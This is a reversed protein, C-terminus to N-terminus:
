GKIAGIMIGKVFYRQLMPYICMIPLITITTIATKIMQLNARVGVGANRKATELSVASSKMYQMLVYSITHLESSSANYFMTDTYANWQTIIGFLMVTAIIPQCIPFVIRVFSQFYGSGDIMASEELAPSINEIYTRMLVFSFVDMVGPLVYVWFTHALNLAYIMQYVPILGASVYMTFIIYKSLLKHGILERKAMVYAAMSTVVLMLAPGVTSRLVSVLLAHPVKQEAIIDRYAALNVGRPLLMFGPTIKAPDSISYIVLYYFPYAM